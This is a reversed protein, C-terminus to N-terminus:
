QRVEKTMENLLGKARLRASEQNSRCFRRGKKNKKANKSARSERPINSDKLGVSDSIKGMLGM